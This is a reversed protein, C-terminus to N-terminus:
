RPGVEREVFALVLRADAVASESEAAFDTAGQYSRHPYGEEVRHRDLRLAASRVAEDSAPSLCVNEHVSNSVIAQGSARLWAESVMVAGRHAAVCASEHLGLERDRGADEIIRRGSALLHDNEIVRGIRVPSRTARSGAQRSM